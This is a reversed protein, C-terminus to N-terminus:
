QTHFMLIAVWLFLFSLQASPTQHKEVMRSKWSCIDIGVCKIYKVQFETYTQKFISM